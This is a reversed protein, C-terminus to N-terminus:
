YDESSLILEKGKKIHERILTEALDSDRKSLAEIIAFHEKVYEKAWTWYEPGRVSISLVQLNFTNVIEVLKDNGSADVLLSHFEFDMKMCFQVNRKEIYDEFKKCTNRMAQLQKDTIITVSSRAALAELTERIEYIGKIEKKSFKKVYTGRRPFSVVFGEKELRSVTERLPTRSVGLDKTLQNFLLRKGPPLDGRLIADRIKEYVKESLNAHQIIQVM